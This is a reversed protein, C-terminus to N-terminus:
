GSNKSMNQTFTIMNALYLSFYRYLEYLSSPALFTNISIARGYPPRLRLETGEPLSNAVFGIRAESEPISSTWRYQTAIGISRDLDAITAPTIRNQVGILWTEHRDQAEVNIQNSVIQSNNAKVDLDSKGSQLYIPLRYQVAWGEKDFVFGVVNEGLNGNLKRRIAHAETLTVKLEAQTRASRNDEICYYTYPSEYYESPIILRRVEGKSQLRDLAPGVNRPERGLRRALEHYGVALERSITEYVLDDLRRM